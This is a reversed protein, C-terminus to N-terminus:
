AGVTVIVETEADYRLGNDCDLKAAIARRLRPLGYNSSYHVQGAALADAAAAKIHAPTDFDPRGIEFHVIRRGQNELETAREVVRRIGSFPIRDLRRAGRPAPRSEESTSAASGAM